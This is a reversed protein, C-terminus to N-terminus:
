FSIRLALQMTRAQDVASSVQYSDSVAAASGSTSWTVPNFNVRNFLNFVMAQFEANVRGKIPIQKALTIDVRIVKPGTVVVSRAGCDGYDEVSEICDPGNAPAFYRGTPTGATYGKADVSFAKVTNDVIDQPLMWVLTRANNDPDTALRLKYIKQLEKEDFGVMRVNGFDVMRGSQARAVGMLSWGGIIRDLAGGADGVFRRGRGFPLEYMWNLSFTHVVNGLSASGNTYTQQREVYPKRFSYFDSQYGKGYTYNAQFSLGKSFRRSLGLNVANYRTGPGNTVVTAANVDPNVVWFNFPLGAAQMNARYTANNRLTESATQPDSNLPFLSQVLTSNTWGSGSYRAANAADASGSGTLNALFIPLPVTGPAGTYAFTSGKGASINALLNAQAKKFEDLFGNDVINIENYDLAGALNRLTWGDHSTTHIFRVEVAMDASIKRQLGLTGSTAYPLKIAPDFVRINSSVSPVPMPYERTTPTDAAPGLNSSSLLVPLTGLNGNALNRIADVRIGPNDGYVETLDSM